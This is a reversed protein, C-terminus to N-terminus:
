DAARVEGTHASSDRCTRALGEDVRRGLLALAAAWGEEPEPMLDRLRFHMIEGHGLMRLHACPEPPPRAPAAGLHDRDGNVEGDAGWRDATTNRRLPPLSRDDDAHALLPGGEELLSGGGLLNHAVPLAGVIAATRNVLKLMRQREACAAAKEPQPLGECPMALALGQAIRAHEAAMYVAHPGPTTWNCVGSRYLTDMPEDHGEELLFLSRILALHPAVAAPQLAMDTCAIQTACFHGIDQLPPLPLRTM